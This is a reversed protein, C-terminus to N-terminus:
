NGLLSDLVSYLDTFTRTSEGIDLIDDIGQRCSNIIVSAKIGDIRDIKVAKELAKVVKQKITVGSEESNYFKYMLYQIKCNLATISKLTIANINEAKTNNWSMLIILVILLYLRKM